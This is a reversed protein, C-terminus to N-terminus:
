RAFLMGIQIGFLVFILVSQFAVAGRLTEVESKARTPLKFGKQTMDQIIAGRVVNCEMTQMLWHKRDEPNMADVQKEFDNLFDEIEVEVDDKVRYNEFEQELSIDNTDM